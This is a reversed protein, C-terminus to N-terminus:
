GSVRRRLYSWFGFFMGTLLGVTHATNAISGMLPTFCLVFWAIMWVITQRHLALGEHPSYKGKMWIYGFLGYVVGSMGGFWPGAMMYQALNSPIAILIMMLTLRLSGRRQEIMFGFDRLMWMNFLLHLAGGHVFVPTVLRWVQGHAIERLNGLPWYHFFMPGLWKVTPAIDPPYRPSILLGSISVRDRGLFLILMVLCSMAIVALTVACANGASRAWQTRVNIFNRARRQAQKAQQTRVQAANRGASTYRPDDPNAQFQELERKAADVKDDDSVWVSWGSAGQEVSNDIGLTVLYDGFRSAQDENPLSALLRM